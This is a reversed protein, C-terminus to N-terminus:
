EFFVVGVEVQVGWVLTSYYYEISYIPIYSNTTCVTQDIRMDRYYTFALPIYNYVNEAKYNFKM